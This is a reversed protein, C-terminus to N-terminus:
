LVYFFLESGRFKGIVRLNEFLPEDIVGLFEPRAYVSLVSGSWVAETPAAHDPDERNAIRVLMQHTGDSFVLMKNLFFLSFHELNEFM